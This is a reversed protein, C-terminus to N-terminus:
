KVLAVFRAAQQEAKETDDDERHGQRHRAQGDAGGAVRLQRREEDGGTASNTEASPVTTPKGSKRARASRWTSAMCPATTVPTSGSAVAMAAAIVNRCRGEAPKQAQAMSPQASTRAKAAHRPWPLRPMPSAKSSPATALPAM